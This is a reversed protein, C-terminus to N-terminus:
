LKIAVNAIVIYIFIQYLKLCIEVSLEILFRFLYEISQFLMIEELQDAVSGRSVHYGVTVIM